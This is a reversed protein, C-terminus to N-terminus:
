SASEPLKVLGALLRPVTVAVAVASKVFDTKFRRVSVLAVTQAIVIVGGAFGPKQASFIVAGALPEIEDGVNAPVVTTPVTATGDVSAFAASVTM